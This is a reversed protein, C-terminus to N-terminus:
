SPSECPAERAVVAHLEDASALVPAGGYFDSRPEGAGRVIYQSAIDPRPLLWYDSRGALFRCAMEDNCVLADGPQTTSSFADRDLEASTPVRLNGSRWAELSGAGSLIVISIAAGAVAWRAYWGPSAVRPSSLSFVGAVSSAGALVFPLVLLTYRWQFELASVGLAMLAAFGFLLVRRLDARQSSAGSECRRVGCRRRLARARPAGRGCLALRCGLSLQGNFARCGLREGGVGRHGDCRLHARGVRNRWGCGCDAGLAMTRRGDRPTMLCAAALVAVFVGSQFFFACVAFAAPAWVLGTIRRCQWILLALGVVFAFLVWPGALAFQSLPPMAAPAHSFAGLGPAPVVGVGAMSWGELATLGIQTVILLGISQAFLVLLPRRTPDDERRCLALCAPALAVVFGFEHLSRCVVLALLFPWLQSGARSKLLWWVAFLAAAVFASYFRAFVAASM